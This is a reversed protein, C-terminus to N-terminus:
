KGQMVKLQTKCFELAEYNDFGNELLKSYFFGMAEALAGMADLLGKVEEMCVEYKDCREATDSVGDVGCECYWDEVSDFGDSESVYDRWRNDLLHICGDCTAM